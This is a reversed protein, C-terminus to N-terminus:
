ACTCPRKGPAMASRIATPTPTPCRASRRGASPAPCGPRDSAIGALGMTALSMGHYAGHLSLVETRGTVRMALKIAAEIADGGGALVAVKTLGEPM